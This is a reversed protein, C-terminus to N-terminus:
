IASQDIYNIVNWSSASTTMIPQNHCTINQAMHLEKILTELQEIPIDNFAM